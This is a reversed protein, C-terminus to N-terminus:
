CMSKMTALYEEVKAKASDLTCASAAGYIKLKPETGSPRVCIWDGGDLHLKLANTKPLDLPSKDGNEDTSTRTVFDDVRVVRKGAINRYSTERMLKMISAMKDMGDLGPFTISITKEIFYGYDAFIEQLM